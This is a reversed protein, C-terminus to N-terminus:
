QCSVDFPRASEIVKGDALNVYAVGEKACSFGYIVAWPNGKMLNDLPNMITIRRPAEFTPVGERLRAVAEDFSLKIAAIGGRLNDLFQTGAVLTRVDAATKLGSEVSYVCKTADNSGPNFTIMAYARHIEARPDPNAFLIRVGFVGDCPGDAIANDLAMVQLRSKGGFMSEADKRAVKVMRELMAPTFGKQKLAPIEDPFVESSQSKQGSEKASARSDEITKCGPGFSLMLVSATVALHRKAPLDLDIVKLDITKLGKM